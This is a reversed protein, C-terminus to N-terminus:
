LLFIYDFKTNIGFYIIYNSYPCKRASAEESHLSSLKDKNNGDIHIESKDDDEFMENM